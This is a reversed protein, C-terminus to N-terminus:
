DPRKVVVIDVGNKLVAQDKEIKQVTYGGEVVDGVEIVSTDSGGKRIVASIGNSGTVTALLAFEPEAPKQSDSTGIDDGDEGEALSAGTSSPLKGIPMAQLQFGPATGNSGQNQVVVNIGDKAKKPLIRFAEPQRFPNRSLSFAPAVTVSGSGAQAAVAPQAPQASRSASKPSLRVFTVVIAGVLIVLLIM